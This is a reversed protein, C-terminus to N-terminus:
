RPECYLTISIVIDNRSRARIPIGVLDFPPIPSHTAACSHWRAVSQWGIHTKEYGTLTRARCRDIDTAKRVVCSSDWASPYSRCPWMTVCCRRRFAASSKMVRLRSWAASCNTAWGSIRIHTRSWSRWKRKMARWRLKNLRGCAVIQSTATSQSRPAGGGAGDRPRLRRFLHAALARACHAREPQPFCFIASLRHSRFAHPSIGVILPEDEPRIPRITVERGM